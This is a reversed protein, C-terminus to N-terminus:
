VNHCDQSKYGESGNPSIRTRLKCEGHLAVPARVVPPALTLPQDFWSTWYGTGADFFHGSQANDCSLFAIEGGNIHCTATQWGAHLGNVTGDFFVESDLNLVFNIVGTWDDRNVVQAHVYDVGRYSNAVASATMGVPVFRTLSVTTVTYCDHSVFGCAHSPARVNEVSTTIFRGLSAPVEHAYAVPLGSFLM